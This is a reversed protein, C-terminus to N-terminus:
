EPHRRKYREKTVLRSLQRALAKDSALRRLSQSELNHDLYLRVIGERLRRALDLDRPSGISTLSADLLDRDRHTLYSQRITLHIAEFAFEMLPQSERGGARVGLALLFALLSIV